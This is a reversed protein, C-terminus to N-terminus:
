KLEKIKTKLASMLGSKLKSLADYGAGSTSTGYGKTSPCQVSAVLRGDPLSYIEAKSTATAKYMGQYGGGIGGGSASVIVYVLYDVNLGGVTKIDTNKVESSKIDVEEIGYGYDVIISKLSDVLLSPQTRSGSNFFNVSYAISKTKFLNIRCSPLVLAEELGLRERDIVVNVAVEKVTPDINVTEVPIETDGQMGTQLPTDSISGSGKVFNAKLPVGSIHTKGKEDTYLAFVTPKKTINGNSDFHIKEEITKLEIRSIIEGIRASLFGGIEEPKGDGTVDENVPVDEFNDFLKNRAEIFQTLAFGINKQKAAKVGELLPTLVWGKRNKLDSEVTERYKSELIFAIATVEGKKPYDRCDRVDVGELLQDCYSQIKSEFKDEVHKKDSRLIDVATSVIRVKIRKSLEDRARSRAANKTDWLIGNFEKLEALADACCYRSDKMKETIEKIGKDKETKEKEEVVEEKGKEKSKLPWTANATSSVCFVVVFLWFLKRLVDM